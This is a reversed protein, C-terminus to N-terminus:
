PRPLIRPYVTARRLKVKNVLLRLLPRWDPNQLFARQLNQFAEVDQYLLLLALGLRARAVVDRSDIALREMCNILVCAVDDRVENELGRVIVGVALRADLVYADRYDAECNPDGNQYRERARSIHELCAEADIEQVRDVEELDTCGQRAAWDGDDFDPVSEATQAAQETVQEARNM